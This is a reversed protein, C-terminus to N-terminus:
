EEIVWKLEKIAYDFVKWEVTQTVYRARFAVLTNMEELIEKETKMSM